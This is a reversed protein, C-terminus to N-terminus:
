KVTQPRSNEREREREIYIYIYVYIYVYIYMDRTLRTNSQMETTHFLTRNAEPVYVQVYSSVFDECSADQENGSAHVDFVYPFVLTVVRGALSRFSM